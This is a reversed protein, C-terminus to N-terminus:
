FYSFVSAKYLTATILALLLLGGVSSGAILPIPNHVKYEELVTETQNSSCFSGPRKSGLSRGPEGVELERGAKGLGQEM